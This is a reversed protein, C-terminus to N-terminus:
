AENNSVHSGDESLIYAKSSAPMRLFFPPRVAAYLRRKYIRTISVSDSQNGGLCHYTEKDEGVYFTVHGGSERTFVLIDGLVPQGVKKGYDAWNLAWLPQKPVSKGARKCILAVFLGCWPISDATYIAKLGLENAWDIIKKNNAAGPTELTGYEKLAESIVRPLVGIKGLWNYKTPYPMM